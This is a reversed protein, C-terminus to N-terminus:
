WFIMINYVNRLNALIYKKHRKKGTLVKGESPCPLAYIRLHVLEDDHFIIAQRRNSALYAM